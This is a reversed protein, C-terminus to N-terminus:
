GNIIDRMEKFINKIAKSTITAGSITDVDDLNESNILLNIYDKKLVKNKYSDNLELIEFGIIKDLSVTVKVKMKGNFSKQSVIYEINDSNNISELIEFQDNNIQNNDPKVNVQEKELHNGDQIYDDVVNILLNKLASSTFTVGAITDVNDLNHINKILTNIYNNDETTQYFSDNQEIVQYKTLKNNEFEVLAKINGSYAKYTAIYTIRNEIKEKSIINFKSDNSDVKAFSTSIKFIVLLMILILILLPIIFKKIDFKSIVGIKEFIFTFMNVTLISTAVGEPSSGNYRLYVTLIGLMISSLIIAPKTVPSTVPDTAMFVAGFMLGGSLVQFLPYYIGQNNFSGILFTMIFVTGIYIIPIQWKITKTITLYVFAVICLISSTEGVAGPIFGFLFNNLSGYPKVLTDYSGIESSTKINTLPTSGSITDVELKNLYYNNSFFLSYSAVIFVYGILAPNFINNGFGGYVLKGLISAVISGIIVISIPINLPLILGLFLGPFLAYSDIIYYKLENNKKHLIMKAYILEVLISTISPILMFIVPYILEFFNTKHNIFPLIGNKCFSFIIIPLLAVMLNRMMKYSSNKDKIFPGKM